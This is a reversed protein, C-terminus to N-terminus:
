AARRSAPPRPESRPCTWFEVVLPNPTRPRPPPPQPQGCGSLLFAGCLAAILLAGIRMAVLAVITPHRWKSRRNTFM